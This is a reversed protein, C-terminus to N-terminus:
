RVECGRESESCRTQRIALRLPVPQLRPESNRSEHGELLVADDPPPTNYRVTMWCGGIAEFARRDSMGHNEMVHSVAEWKAAPTVM